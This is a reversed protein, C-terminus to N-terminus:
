RSWSRLRSIGVLAIGAAVLIQAGGPLDLIETSPIVVNCRSPDSWRGTCGSFSAAWLSGAILAVFVVLVSLWLLAWRVLPSTM